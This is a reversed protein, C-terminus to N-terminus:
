DTLKIGQCLPLTNYYSEVIGDQKMRQRIADVVQSKLKILEGHNINICM